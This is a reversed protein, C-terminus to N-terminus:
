KANKAPPLKALAHYLAEYRALAPAYLEAMAPNPTVLRETTIMNEAAVEISPFHGSGVAALVASGLCCADVASKTLKLPIQLIDAHMQLWLPSKTPSGAISISSPVFGSGSQMAKIAVYSGFCVSELLARWMHGRQHSLSLGIWAGRSHPDTFPTRNGQFHDLATVGDSGAPIQEAEADLEQYSASPAMNDKFWRLASGTSTQGGEIVGLGRIVADQYTGWFGEGHFNQDTLGLHLHSSGTLLAMEGARTCGLGVIGVFADAGGQVVLLGEPLGLDQAANATLNGVPEGMAIVDVAAPWKSLLDDLGLQQLLGTPWGREVSYHWRISANNQSACMRGTLRHNVYDICEVIWRAKNYTDPEHRKLWLAKPVMWEASVPGKGGSNVRRSPCSAAPVESVAQATDAARVDMWLLAPRLPGGSEDLACVTCSTCSLSLAMIFLGEGAAALAENMAVKLSAWWDNPNQEACGYAPFSTVYPASSAAIITGDMAYLGVRLSETGMDVGVVVCVRGNKAALDGMIQHPLRRSKTAVSM